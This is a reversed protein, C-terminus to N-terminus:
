GDLLTRLDAPVEARPHRRLFERLSERADQDQGADRLERIRRLWHERVAPSDMSAPPQEDLPQDALVDVPTDPHAADTPPQARGSDGDGDGDGDVADVAVRAAAVASAAAVPPVTGTGGSPDPAIAAAREPLAAAPTAGTDAASRRPSAEVAQKQQRAAPVQGDPAPRLQWALGLAVLVSAALGLGLPWRRRRRPPTTAAPRAPASRAMALIRADLEPSPSAAGDLRALRQALAREKSGLPEHGSRNM